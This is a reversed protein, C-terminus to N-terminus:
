KIGCRIRHLNNHRSSFDALKKLPYLKYNLLLRPKSIKLTKLYYM